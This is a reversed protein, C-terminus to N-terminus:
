KMKYLWASANANAKVKKLAKRAEKQSAFGGYTVRYLGNKHDYINASYGQDQLRSVLRAANAKDGFCGGIIQYRMKSIIVKPEEIVVNTTEAVAFKYNAENFDDQLLDAASLDLETLGVPRPTYEVCPVSKFPNLNSFQFNRDNDMIGSQTPVWVLYAIFPIIALGWGVKSFTGTKTVYKIETKVSAPHTRVAEKGVEMALPTLHFSELGFSGISDLSGPEFKLLNEKTKYFSGVTMFDFVHQEKLEKEVHFVFAKLYVVADQYSIGENESLASALLGDNNNINKNFSVKKGPPSFKNKVMDIQASAPNVVFAGFEPITVCENFQLLDSVINSINLINM